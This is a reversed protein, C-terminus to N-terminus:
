FYTNSANIFVIFTRYLNLFLKYNSKKKTVFFNKGDNDKLRISQNSVKQEHGNLFDLLDKTLIAFTDTRLKNMTEKLRSALQKKRAPDVTKYRREYQEAESLLMQYNRLTDPRIYAPDTVPASSPPQTSSATAMLPQTSSSIGPQAQTSVPTVPPLQASFSPPQPPSPRAM